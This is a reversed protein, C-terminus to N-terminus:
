PVLLAGLIAARHEDRLMGGWYTLADGIMAAFSISM